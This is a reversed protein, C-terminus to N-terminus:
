RRYPTASWAEAPTKGSRFHRVWTLLEAVPPDATPFMNEAEAIADVQAKWAKFEPEAMVKAVFKRDARAASAAARIRDQSAQEEEPTQPEPICPGPTNM